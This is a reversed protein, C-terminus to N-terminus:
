MNGFKKLREEAEEARSLADSLDGKLKEVMTELERVYELKRARSRRAAVTNQRRKAQIADALAPDVDDEDDFAVSSGRKKSQSQFAAPIVKRSTTSPRVYSRQQTPADVPVLGDATINKRHGTVRRKTTSSAPDSAASPLDSSTVAPAAAGQITPSCTLPLAVSPLTSIASSPSPMPAIGIQPTSAIAILGEIDLINLGLASTSTSKFDAYPQQPPETGFLPTAFPLDDGEMDNMAPSVDMVSGPSYGLAPTPFATSPTEVGASIM